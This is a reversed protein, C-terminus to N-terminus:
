YDLDAVCETPILKMLMRLAGKAGINKLWFIAFGFHLKLFAACLMKTNFIQM